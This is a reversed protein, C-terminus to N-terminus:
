VSSLFLVIDNVFVKLLVALIQSFLCIVQDVGDSAAIKVLRFALDEPLDASHPLRHFSEDAQCLLDM